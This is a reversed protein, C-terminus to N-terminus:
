AAAIEHRDNGDRVYPPLTWYKLYMIAPDIVVSSVSNV